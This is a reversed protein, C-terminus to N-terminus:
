MNWTKDNRQGITSYVRYKTSRHNSRSCPGKYVEYIKDGDQCFEEYTYKGYWSVDFEESCAVVPVRRPVKNERIRQFDEIVGNYAM